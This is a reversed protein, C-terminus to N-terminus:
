RDPAVTLDSLDYVALAGPIVNGLNGGARRPDLLESWSTITDELTLRHVRHDILAVHSAIPGAIGIGHLVFGAKAQDALANLVTQVDYVRQGLLPRDLHLALFADANDQNARSKGPIPQAMGRPEIKLVNGGQRVYALDSPSWESNGGLVIHIPRSEEVIKGVLWRCPITIGPETTVWFSRETAEDWTQAGQEHIAPNVLPSKWRILEKVKTQLEFRDLKPIAKALTKALNLNLAFASIEDPFERLVQGTKTCQLDADSGISDPEIAETYEVGQLWRGLWSAAAERRSRTFGHPENSEFLDLREAHGLVGYINKAERFTAWSGDIDFFDKTGVCIM